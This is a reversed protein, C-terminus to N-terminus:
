RRVQLRQKEATGAVVNVERIISLYMGRQSAKCIVPLVHWSDGPNAIGIVPDKKWLVRVAADVTSM